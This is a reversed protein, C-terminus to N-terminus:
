PAPPSPRPPATRPARRRASRGAQVPGSSVSLTVPGDGLAPGDVSGPGIAGTKLRFPRNAVVRRRLRREAVLRDGQWVQVHPDGVFARSWAIFGRGAGFGKGTVLGRGATGSADLQQPFVWALSPEVRVDLVPPAPEGRLYALVAPAVARGTGAAVGATHAPHVLNGVAFVGPRSTRLGPDVRPGRSGDDMVLGGRRALEHDPVWDGTFVVTDCGIREVLGNVRRVDVAEVRQRGVIAELVSSTYLPVRYRLRAAAALLPWSQQGPQETLMAAVGVGAGRLTMVASYAVHEAGVVVATTGIQAGRRGQLHVLQQLLGTTLVGAGRDGPVLRATRPRERAGTALVVARARLQEVGSPSVARLCVLGSSDGDDGDGDVRDGDVRDGDASDGDVADDWDTVSVGTRVVAGAARARDVWAQAYAPGTLVRRLDRVGFGTHHCHRPVGGAREERDVVVVRSVGASRLAVAAALGSPGAGVVLVDVETRGTV